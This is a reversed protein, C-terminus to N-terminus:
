KSILIKQTSVSGNTRLELHYLGSALFSLDLQTKKHVAPDLITRHLLKGRVDLVTLFVELTVNSPIDIAFQGSSPNPFVEFSFNDNESIGVPGGSFHATLNDDIELDLLLDQQDSTGGFLSGGSWHDFEFGENPIAKIEIPCSMYYYGQWPYSEPVITSVQINGASAPEVNFELLVQGGLGLVESVQERAFPLRQANYNVINNVSNLWSGVSPPANWREVHDPMAPSIQEVLQDATLEWVEPQFITNMLDAYRQSFECKFQPNELARDFIISHASVFGPNRAAELYNHSPAQGFAGLAGDTDFLMYRWKGDVTQPRWLKINNAGWAIGMWDVNQIYTETIFYDIYNKVDFRDEFFPYFFPSQPDTLSLLAFADLFHDNSGNLTTFSNLLDVQDSPVGHNSEIYHQDLKERIGYIGWYEGNLYLICPEYSMNDIYTENVLRSVMGDQIKDTGVHQGGSRININNVNEIWPKQTFLPVELRGTLDSGMNFRFSKQPEARSWGGHISLELQEEGLLQQAGNFFEMRSFKSWPQWFNSDFFPYNPQANPGSVYIGENWDWLHVPDTHVSFVPLGHNDEELFYTRDVIESPLLDDSSYARASIVRNTNFDIPATFIPDNQDPADGNITFHITSNVASINTSQPGSYWGSPLSFLPPLTVGEYCSSANNSLGPSPLDFYCLQGSGDPSRGYSVNRRLDDPISIFDLVTGNEDSLVLEENLDLKFNTHFYEKLSDEEFWTPTSQFYSNNSTIGASLFFNSSLDSSFLSQNHVQIALVNTGENALALVEDNLLVRSEPFIGQYLGAEKISNALANYNPPDGEINDSRSIEVGNLYAVYADDYDAHLVISSVDELDPIEFTKRLFVSAVASIVTGDDGDGYGFGGNGSSWASDNFSPEKWNFPPASNGPFYKWENQAIVASEWHDAVHTINKGSACVLIIESPELTFNPFQWKDLDSENDSLYIGSLDTPDSGINILEIWDTELGSVEIGKHVSVENFRIQSHLMLSFFLFIHILAYRM